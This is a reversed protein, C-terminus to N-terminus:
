RRWHFLGVSKGSHGALYHELWAAREEDSAEDWDGSYHIDIDRGSGSFSAARRRGDVEEEVRLRGGELIEVVRNGAFRIDNGRITYSFSVGDSTGTISQTGSWTSKGTANAHAQPSNRYTKVLHSQRRFADAIIARSEDDFERPVGDVLHEYVNGGRGPRVRIVHREGGTREQVVEVKGSDRRFRIATGNAKMYVHSAELKTKSLADSQSLVASGVNIEGEIDDVEPVSPTTGAARAANARTQKDSTSRVDREAAARSAEGTSEGVEDPPIAASIGPAFGTLAGAVVVAIAAVVPSRLTTERRHDSSLVRTVREVLRSSSEAMAAIPLRRDVAGLRSAIQALTEALAEDKGTHLLAYDDCLFEAATRMEKQVLLTLPQFFFVAKITEAIMLWLPDRRALHALEHGLIAEKQDSSLSAFLVEPVVIENSSLALPSVVAHSTTLRVPFAVGARERLVNLLLLDEGSAAERRKGFSALLQRRRLLLRLSLGGAIAAWVASAALPWSTQSRQDDAVRPVDAAAPRADTARSETARERVAPLTVEPRQVSAPVAAFTALQPRPLAPLFTQATATVLPAVLAIRCIADRTAASRAAKAMVIALVLVISSHVAYTALWAFLHGSMEREGEESDQAVEEV